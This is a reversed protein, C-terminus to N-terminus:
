RRRRIAILMGAGALAITGPAPIVGEFRPLHVEGRQLVDGGVWASGEIVGYFTLDALPALLAGNWAKSGLNIETAQYFNWIVHSRAFMSNMNGVFNGHNFNISTGSVNVVVTTAGNLAMDIQQVRDNNLLQQGNVNFVAVGGVPVASFNVPGPQSLPINVTNTPALGALYSSATNMQGLLSDITSIVNGDNQVLAGGGNMNFNTSGRTGALRAKGANMNINSASVTGGVLLSDVNVFSNTPALMTGYNSASGALNFRIASRGEVESQSDLSGGVLLNWDTIVVSAMSSGAACVLALASVSLAVSRSM